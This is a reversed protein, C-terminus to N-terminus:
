FMVLIERVDNFTTFECFVECKIDEIKDVVIIPTLSFIDGEIFRRFVLQQEISPPSFILEKTNKYKTKLLKNFQEISIFQMDNCSTISTKTSIKKTTSYHLFFSPITKKNEDKVFARLLRYNIFKQKKLAFKIGNKECKLVKTYLDLRDNISGHLTENALPNMLETAIVKQADRQAGLGFLCGCYNQHYLKDKKALEFQEKAGGNIRFDPALIKLNSENEIKLLASKLQSISKKPSAFLTTTLKKVGLEKAKKASMQLRNDFCIDCRKGREPESEYGSITRMWSEYDYEGVILEIKLKDCSRQVDFLRLKYESYPHINPNYFYGILQEDPYIKKLKQLFFHSDVSCCIHVLM